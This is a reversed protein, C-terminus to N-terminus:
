GLFVKVANFLYGGFANRKAIAVGVHTSDVALYYKTATLTFIRAFDPTLLKGKVGSGSEQSKGLLGLTKKLFGNGTTNWM